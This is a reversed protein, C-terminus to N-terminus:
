PASGAKVLRGLLEGYLRHVAARHEALDGRLHSVADAGGSRGGRYGLRAALRALDAEDEPLVHTQTDHAMQLKNEVDRLFLYARSLVEHEPAPLAGASRLGELAVLTNRARPLRLAGGCRIQLVQALLEIERIGGRGLKVHRDVLGRAALRRDSEQKMRLVQRVAEVQFPRRWVFPAVGRLLARGLEADGAIPRAKIFALREWPAARTRYYEEAADLSVTLAGARGEPRLRLDVRYVLGEHLTEGLLATLHRALAHARGHMESRGGRGGRHVYVLDIDSSFNLERGGLKGLALVTFGGAEERGAAPAHSARLETVTTELAVQVLADGVSSLAALTEAVPSLRLLDRVAVLLVERRRALRLVDRAADRGGEAIARRADGAIERAHRSRALRHPRTLWDAWEPCRVLQEGLFPSGGLAWLLADAGDGGGGLLPLISEAKGASVLRQLRVLAGGPDPVRRLRRLLPVLASHFGLAVPSQAAILRLERAAQVPEALGYSRLIALAAEGPPDELLRGRRNM